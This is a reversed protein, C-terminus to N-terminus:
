CFKHMKPKYTEHAESSNKSSTNPKYYHRERFEVLREQESLAEEYSFM